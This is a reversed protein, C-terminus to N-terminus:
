KIYIYTYKKFDTVYEIALHLIEFMLVNEVISAIYELTLINTRMESSINVVFTVLIYFILTIISFFYWKTKEKKDSMIPYNENSENNKTKGNDDDKIKDVKSENKDIKSENENVLLSEKEEIENEKIKNNENNNSPNLIKNKNKKVEFFCDL